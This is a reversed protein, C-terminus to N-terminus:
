FRGAIWLGGPAPLVHVLLGAEGAARRSVHLQAGGAAAAGVHMAGALALRTRLDLDEAPMILTVATGGVLLVGTVGWGIPAETLEAAGIGGGLLILEGGAAAFAGTGVLGVGLLVTGIETIPDGADETAIVLIGLGEMALGTATIVAGTKAVTLRRVARAADQTLPAAEAVPAPDEIPPPPTVDM